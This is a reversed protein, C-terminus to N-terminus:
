EYPPTVFLRWESVYTLRHLVTQTQFLALLSKQYEHCHSFCWYCVLPSHVLDLRSWVSIRSNLERMNPLHSVAQSSVEWLPRRAKYASMLPVRVEAQWVLEASLHKFGLFNCRSALRSEKWRKNEAECDSRRNGEWAWGGGGRRGNNQEMKREGWGKKNRQKGVVGIDLKVSSDPLRVYTNKLHFLNLVFPTNDSGIPIDNAQGQSIECTRQWIRHCSAISFFFFHPFM